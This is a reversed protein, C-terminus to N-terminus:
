GCCRGRSRCGWRPPQSTWSSWAGGQQVARAIAVAQRQGGSLLGVLTYVSPIKIKLRQLVERSERVM